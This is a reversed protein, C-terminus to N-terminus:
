QIQIKLIEAVGNAIQWLATLIANFPSHSLSFKNFLVREPKSGAARLLIISGKMRYDYIGGQLIYPIPPSHLFPHPMPFIEVSPLCIIWNGIQLQWNGFSFLFLAQRLHLAEESSAM